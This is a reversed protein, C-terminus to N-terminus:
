RFETVLGNSALSGTPPPTTGFSTAYVRRVPWATSYPVSHDLGNSTRLLGGDDVAWQTRIRAGAIAASWTYPLMLATASTPPTLVSFAINIDCGPSGAFALSIPLPLGAYTPSTGGLAVYRLGSAPANTLTESLSSTNMTGASSLAAAMGTVMCGSGIRGATHLGGPGREFYHAPTSPSASTIWAEWM